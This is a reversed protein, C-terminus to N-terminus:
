RQGGLTTTIGHTVVLNALNAGPDSIPFQTHYSGSNRVLTVAYRRPVITTIELDTIRWGQNTLNVVLSRDVGAHFVSDTPM